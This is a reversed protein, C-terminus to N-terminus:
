HTEGAVHTRRHLRALWSRAMARRIAKGWILFVVVVLNNAALVGAFIGGVVVAYGHPVVVWNLVANGFGFSVAQKGVNIAILMESTNAFHADVAYAITFAFFFYGSWSMLGSGIFLLPWPLYRDATLGYLILGAPGILMPILLVGLRMEAERVGSNRRTLYAALRDSTATLPVALLFAITPALAQLGSSTVSWNYPPSMLLMPFTFGVAFAGLGINAGYTTIVWLAQPVLFYSFSRLVTGVISVNRDLRGTISITQLYTKRPPPAIGAIGSSTASPAKGTKETSEHSIMPLPPAEESSLAAARDYSTEEVVLFTLVFVAAGFAFCVYFFLRWSHGGSLMYGAALPAVSALCLCVTYYGIRKGREHIFFIDNVLQVPLAECVGAGFAHVCRAAMLGKFTTAQSAAILGALYMVLTLLMVPRRGIKLYLPVWVLSSFGFCLNPYNILNSAETPSVTFLESFLSIYVSIGSLSSNGIFSYISVIVLIATKKSTPWQLPDNPDLAPIPFLAQGYATDDGDEAALNVTGPIVDEHAHSHKLHDAHVREEHHTAHIEAM